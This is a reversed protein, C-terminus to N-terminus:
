LEVGAMVFFRTGEISRSITAHPSEAEVTFLNIVYAQFLVDARVAISEDLAFLGGFGLGLNYGPKIGEIKGCDTARSADCMDALRALDDGLDGAPFLLTLGTQIRPVLWVGPALRPTLEFVLDSSLDSGLEYSEDIGDLDVRDPAVYLFGLGLRVMRGVAGMFDVNAGFALHNEFDSRGTVVSACEGECSLEEAGAGQLLTAARLAVSFKRLKAPASPKPDDRDLATQSPAGPSAQARAVGMGSFLVFVIAAIECLGLCSKM